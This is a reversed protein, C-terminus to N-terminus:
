TRALGPDDRARTTQLEKGESLAAKGLDSFLIAREALVRAERKPWQGTSSSLHNMKTQTHRTHRQGLGPISFDITAPTDEEPRAASSSKREKM